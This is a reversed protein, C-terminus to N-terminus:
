LVPCPCANRQLVLAPHRWGGAPAPVSAPSGPSRGGRRSVPTAGCAGHLAAQKLPLSVFAPAAAPSSFKLTTFRAAKDACRRAVTDLVLSLRGRPAENSLWHM